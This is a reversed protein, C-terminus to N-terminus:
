PLFEKPLTVHDTKRRILFNECRLWDDDRWRAEQCPLVEFHQAFEGPPAHRFRRLQEFALFDEITDIALWRAEGTGHPPIRRELFRRVQRPEIIFLDSYDRLLLRWAALAPDDQQRRVVGAAVPERPARPETLLHASWPPVPAMVMTEPQKGKLWEETGTAAMGAIVGDLRGVLRSLRQSHRHDGLEAYKVTNRLRSELRIRFTNIREYTQDIHDFVTRITTLDHDLLAGAAVRDSVLEGQVYGDVVQDRTSGEDSIQAVGDLIERKFRYPHNTKYISEFDKLVLRGIFDEFFTALRENLNEAELIEREIGRLHSLVARLERSFRVAVEAAKNLGVANTEADQLVSALANRITIVVGRFSTALGNEIAALREALLMAAPPMDVTVRIGYTEEELWGKDILQAYVRHARDLLEDQRGGDRPTRVRRIRRGRTRIAALDTFDEDEATWLEPSTRLTDYIHGVVDLRTPFTVTDSFFREFLDVVLRAFLRRNARSFVLFLDDNLQGFLPM